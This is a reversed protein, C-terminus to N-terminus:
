KNRTQPLMRMPNLALMQWKFVERGDRKFFLNSFLLSAAQTIATAIAAGYLGFHNIFIWNLIINLIVSIIQSYTLIIGRNILTYHGARLGANYTFFAGIVYVRYIGYAQAYEPNLIQLITPLVILSLGVGVIYVWTLISTIRIYLEEYDNKNCRYAKILKPYVSERIPGIAIQVVLVLKVAIAYIGVDSTSLMSGLMVTDCKQYITACSAAIALPISEIIFQRLLTFDAGCFLKCHFRNEYLLYVILYNLLATVTAICAIYVIPLRLHVAILQLFCGILSSIDNALVVKKSELIFEFRNQIGFKFDILITNLLLICFLIYFKSDDRFFRIIILGIITSIVSFFLRSITATSVVVKPDKLDYYKKVVRGDVLTVIIEFLAVISAAYEYLGYDSSGYYNAIKVIVVINIVLYFIKDFTMWGVNKIINKTEDKM